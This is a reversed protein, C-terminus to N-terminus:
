ARDGLNLTVELGFSALRPMRTKGTAGERRLAACFAELDDLCVSPLEAEDQMEGPGTSVCRITVTHTVFEQVAPEHEPPM